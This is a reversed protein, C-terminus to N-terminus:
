NIMEIVNSHAPLGNAGLEFYKVKALKGIYWDKDILYQQRLQYSGMPNSKFSLGNKARLVFMGTEPENDKPIVNLVEFSDILKFKLKIMDWSRKGPQYLADMNRVIGGEFGSDNYRSAYDYAEEDNNVIVYPSKFLLPNNDLNSVNNSISLLNNNLIRFRESQNLKPNIIDFIVFTVLSSDNKSNSVVGNKIFPVSARIYDRSKGHIYLEGDLILDYAGNHLFINSATKLYNSIRPIHYELGEHSRIVVRKDKNAFLDNSDEKVELSIMARLGNYKPQLFAPYQIRKLQRQCLMPKLFGHKDTIEFNSVADLASEKYGENLKDAILKNAMQEITKSVQKNIFKEILKMGLIGYSVKIHSNYEVQWVRINKGDNLYLKRTTM